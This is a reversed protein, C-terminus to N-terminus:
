SICLSVYLSVVGVCVCKLCVSAYLTIRNIVNIFTRCSVCVSVCVLLRRCVCKFCMYACLLIKYIMNIILFHTGCFVCLSERDVGARGFLNRLDSDTVVHGLSRIATGVEAAAIKGDSDTDFLEFAEPVVRVCTKVLLVFEQM